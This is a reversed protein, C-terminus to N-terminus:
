ISILMQDTVFRKVLEDILLQSLKTNVPIHVIQNTMVSGWM